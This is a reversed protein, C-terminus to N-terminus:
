LVAVKVIKWHKDTSVKLWYIGPRDIFLQRGSIIGSQVLRGDVAYLEYPASLPAGKINVLGSSPNPFLSIASQTTESTSTILFTSDCSYGVFNYQLSDNDFCRLRTIERVADCLGYGLPLRLGGSQQGIGAYVNTLLDGEITGNNEIRLHQLPITDGDVVRQTISDASMTAIGGGGSCQGAWPVGYQSYLAFDYNLQYTELDTDWFSIINGEQRLYHLTGTSGEEVVFAVQGGITATDVIEYSEFSINKFPGGSFTEVEYIWKTGIDFGPFIPTRYNCGEGEEATLLFRETQYSIEHDHYCRLWEEVAGIIPITYTLNEVLTRVSGIRELYVYPELYIAGDVLRCEIRKLSDAGTPVYEVKDVVFTNEVVEDELPSEFMEFRVTDGAVVGYDYILPLSDQWRYYIKTSDQYFLYDGVKRYMLGDVLTDKESEIVYFDQLPHTNWINLIGENQLWRAGIPAFEVQAKALLSFLCLLPLILFCKTRSRDDIKTLSFAKKDKM